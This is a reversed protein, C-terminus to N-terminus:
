ALNTVPNECSSPLCEDSSTNVFIDVDDTVKETTEDCDPHCDDAAPLHQDICGHGREVETDTLTASDRLDVKLVDDSSIPSIWLSALRVNVDDSREEEHLDVALPLVVKQGLM